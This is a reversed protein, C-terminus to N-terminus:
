LEKKVKSVVRVDFIRTHPYQGASDKEYKKVMDWINLLAATVGVLAEMEVGTEAVTKVTVTVEIYDDGYGFQVKVNSIPIPHCLPLIEPTRKVALIAAVSSVQEVDGKEVLGRKILEITERRLRIKGSATAERYSRPKLTVDVMQAAM